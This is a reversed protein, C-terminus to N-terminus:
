SQELTGFDTAKDDAPIRQALKALIGQKFWTQAPIFKGAEEFYVDDNEFVSVMKTQTKQYGDQYHVMGRWRVPLLGLVANGAHGGEPLPTAGTKKSNNEM